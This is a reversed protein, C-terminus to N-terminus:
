VSLIRYCDKIIILAANPMSLNKANKGIEILKQRNTFYYLIKEFILKGSLNKELIMEGANKKVLSLANFEQHNDAAYPFPIYIAAKGMATIEAITGAGARCIILDAKKYLSAMDMFFPEVMYKIGHKIYADKIKEKDEYRSQHIFFLDDKKIKLYDLSEIITKNISRASQSGGTVFITFKENKKINNDEENKEITNLIQSRLPNGTLLVKNKNFFKDSDEFSIYIRDSIKSLIRNTMGPITNQEHLATKINLLKAAIMIPASSHGGVGIVIDPNFDKIIRFGSIVGKFLKFLAKITGSISAGKIPSAQITKFEFKNTSFMKKEFDNGISVFVIKNNENHKLFEEGIAIGPFLHGGTVGGTIIIKLPKQM